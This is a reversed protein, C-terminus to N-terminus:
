VKAELQRGATSLDGAVQVALERTPAIVLAQPAAGRESPLQLRNLLPVGFGLTKGTGTRAQGILDQGALAIPLTMEQIAFTKVIGVEALAEVIEPRVDFDSFAPSDDRVPARAALPAADEDAILVDSVSTSNDPTETMCLPEECPLHASRQPAAGTRRRGTPPPAASLQM